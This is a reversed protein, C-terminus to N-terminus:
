IQSSNDVRGVGYLAVDTDHWDELSLRRTLYREAGENNQRELSYRGVM